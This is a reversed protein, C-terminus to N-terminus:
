QRRNILIVIFPCPALLLILQVAIDAALPLTSYTLGRLARLMGYAENLYYGAPLILWFVGTVLLYVAIVEVTLLFRSPGKVEKSM